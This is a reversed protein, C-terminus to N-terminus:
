QLRHGLSQKAEKTYRFTPHSTPMSAEQPSQTPHMHGESVGTQYWTFGRSHILDEDKVMEKVM